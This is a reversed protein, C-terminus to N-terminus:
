LQVRANGVLKHTGDLASTLGVSPAHGEVETLRLSLAPQHQISIGVDVHAVGFSPDFHRHFSRAM